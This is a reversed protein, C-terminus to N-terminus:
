RKFRSDLREKEPLHKFNETQEAPDTTPQPKQTAALYDSYKEYELPDPGYKNKGSTGKKFFLFLSILLYPAAWYFFQIPIPRDPLFLSLMLHYIVIPLAWLGSANFDHLRRSTISYDYIKLIFLFALSIILVFGTDPAKELLGGFFRDVSKWFFVMLLYQKRNLRGKTTLYFWPSSKLMNLM